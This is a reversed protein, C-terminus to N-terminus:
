KSPNIIQTQYTLAKNILYGGSTVLIMAAFINLGKLPGVLDQLVGRVNDSHAYMDWKSIGDKDPAFLSSCHLKVLKKLGAESKDSQYAIHYSKCGLAVFLAGAAILLVRDAPKIQRGKQEPQDKKYSDAQITFLPHLILLTLLIKKM